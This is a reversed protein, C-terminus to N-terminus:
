KGRRKNNKLLYYGFSTGVVGLIVGLGISSNTANSIERTGGRQACEQMRGFISCAIRAGSNGTTLSDEHGGKGLDDEDAHVILTRGWLEDVNVGKLFYARTFEGNKNPEINGLDGTHGHGYDGHAVKEKSWHTCAGHCGDGRLDGATHIHFGHKGAPLKTFHVKLRIGNNAASAVAEGIVPGTKFVAVAM